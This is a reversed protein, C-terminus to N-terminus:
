LLSKIQHLLGKVQNAASPVYHFTKLSVFVSALLSMFVLVSIKHELNTLRELCRSEDPFIALSNSADERTMTLDIYGDCISSAPLCVASLNTALHFCFEKDSIEDLFYNKPYVHHRRNVLTNMSSAVLLLGAINGISLAFADAMHLPYIFSFFCYTTAKAIAPSLRTSYIALTVTRVVENGSVHDASNLYVIFFCVIFIDSVYLFVGFCGLAFSPQARTAVSQSQVSTNSVSEVYIASMMAGCNFTNSFVLPFIVFSPVLKMVMYSTLPQLPYSAPTNKLGRLVVHNGAQAAETLDIGGTKGFDEQSIQVFSWITGTLNAAFCLAVSAPTTKWLTLFNSCAIALIMSGYATYPGVPRLIGSKVLHPYEVFLGIDGVMVAIALVVSVASVTIMFGTPMVRRAGASEVSWRAMRDLMGRSVLKKRSVNWLSLGLALAVMALAVGFLLEAFFTDCANASKPCRLSVTLLIVPALVLLLVPKVSSQCYQGASSMRSTVPGVM